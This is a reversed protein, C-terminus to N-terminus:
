TVPVRLELLLPPGAELWRWLVPASVVLHWRKGERGLPEPWWSGWESPSLTVEKYSEMAEEDPFCEEASGTHQGSM